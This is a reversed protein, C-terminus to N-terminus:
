ATQSAALRQQELVRAARVAYAENVTNEIGERRQAITLALQGLRAVTARTTPEMIRGRQESDLRLASAIAHRNM